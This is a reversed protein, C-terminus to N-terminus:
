LRLHFYPRLPIVLHRFSSEFPFHLVVTSNTLRASECLSLIRTSLEEPSWQYIRTFVVTTLSPWIWTDPFLEAIQTPLIVKTAYFAGGLEPDSLTAHLRQEDCTIIALNSPM